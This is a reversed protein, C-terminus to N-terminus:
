GCIDISFEKNYGLIDSHILRKGRAPSDFIWYDGRPEWNNEICYADSTVNHPYVLCIDSFAWSEGRCESPVLDSMKLQATDEPYEDVVAKQVEQVVLTAERPEPRKPYTVSWEPHKKKLVEDLDAIAEVTYSLMEYNGFSQKAIAIGRESCLTELEDMMQKNPYKTCVDVWFKYDRECRYCDSGVFVADSKIDGEDLLKNTEIPSKNLAEELTCYKTGSVVCLGLRPHNALYSM